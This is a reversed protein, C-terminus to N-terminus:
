RMKTIMMFRRSDLKFRETEKEVYVSLDPASKTVLCGAGLFCERGLTVMHAVTSNMGLFSREGIRCNGGINAGSTLWCHDEIVSHHGVLVGNWIAVNNGIRAFPQVLQNELIVCNDGIQRDGIIGAKSSIFTLLDYNKQKASKYMKERLGNCDSYSASVHMKFDSAPFEKEIDEFPVIPKGQFPSEKIFERNVSFAVVEHPSDCKFYHHVIEATQGAGYIVLKAM